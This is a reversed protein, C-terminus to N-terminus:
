IYTLEITVQKDPYETNHISEFTKYATEVDRIAEPNIHNKGEIFPLGVIVRKIQHPVSSSIAELRQKEVGEVSLKMVLKKENM